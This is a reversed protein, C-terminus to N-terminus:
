KEVRCATRWERRRANVEGHGALRSDVYGSERLVQNRSPVISRWKKERARVTPYEQPIQEVRALFAAALDM